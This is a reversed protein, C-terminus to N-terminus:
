GFILGSTGRELEHRAIWEDHSPNWTESRSTWLGHDQGRCDHCMHPYPSGPTRRPDDLKPAANQVMAM